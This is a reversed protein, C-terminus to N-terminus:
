CSITLGRVFVEVSRKIRVQLTGDPASPFHHQLTLQGHVMSWLAFALALVDNEHMHDPLCDQVASNLRLFAAKAADSANGSLNPAAPEIGFMLQYHGPKRQWFDVYHDIMRLLRESPTLTSDVGDIADSLATFGQISLSALIEPIGDFQSYLPMTSGGLRAAIKRASVATVGEEELLDAANRLINEKTLQARSQM